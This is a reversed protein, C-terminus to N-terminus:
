SNLFPKAREQVEPITLVIGLANEADPSPNKDNLFRIAGHHRAEIQEISGAAALFDKSDLLAAAGTYAGVGTEELVESVELIAAESSYDFADTNIMDASSLDEEAMGAALLAKTLFEVHVVENDRLTTIIGVSYDTLVGSDVAGKYFEAELHELLLAFNLIDADTLDQLNAKAFSAADASPSASGAVIAMLGTAAAGKIFTRRTHGAQEITDAQNQTYTMNQHGREHMYMMYQPETYEQRTRKESNRQM